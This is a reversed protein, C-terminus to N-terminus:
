ADHALHRRAAVEAMRELAADVLDGTVQLHTVLRIHRPPRDSVIVGADHLAAVVETSPGLAGVDVYVMNTEVTEPDIGFDM